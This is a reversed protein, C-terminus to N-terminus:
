LMRGGGIRRKRLRELATAFDQEAVLKDDAWANMRLLAALQWAPVRFKDALVPIAMLQGEPTASDTNATENNKAM